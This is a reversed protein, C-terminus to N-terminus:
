VSTTVDCLQRWTSPRIRAIPLTPPRVLGLWYLRLTTRRLLWPGNGFPQKPNADGGSQTMHSQQSLKFGNQPDIIRDGSVAVRSEHAPKSSIESGDFKLTGLPAEYSWHYTMSSGEMQEVGSSSFREVVSTLRSEIETEPEIGPNDSREVRFQQQQLQGIGLITQGSWRAEVNQITCVLPPPSPTSSALM